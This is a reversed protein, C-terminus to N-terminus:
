RVILNENKNGIQNLKFFKPSLYQTLLELCIDKLKLCYIFTNDDYVYKQNHFLKMKLTSFQLVENIFVLEQLKPKILKGIM